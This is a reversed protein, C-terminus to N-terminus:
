ARVWLTVGPAAVTNSVDIYVNGASSFGQCSPDTSCLTSLVGADTHWAQLARGSATQNLAYFSYDGYGPTLIAHMPDACNRHVCDPTSPSFNLANCSNPSALCSAECNALSSGDGHETFPCDSSVAAEGPVGFHVFTKSRPPQAVDTNPLATWRAPAVTAYTALLQQAIAVPSAGSPTTPPRLDTQQGWGVEFSFLAADLAAQDIPVGTASSNQMAAFLLSWRAAYYSSVLGSWGNKAAYDNIEGKPGWLTVQNRANFVLLSTWSADDGGWAAADAIWNGLLYNVDAALAADLDSILSLTFNVLANVSASANVKAFRSALLAHADSFLNVLFQRSLDTLDYSFPGTTADVEGGAAAAVYLRLAALIATANTNRSMQDAVTPYLELSAEDIASNYAGVTLLDQARALSPSPMGGPTGYRRAAWLRMWQATDNIPETRWGSEMAVDFMSPIM